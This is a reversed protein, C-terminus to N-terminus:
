NWHNVYLTINSGPTCYLSEILSRIELSWSLQTEDAAAERTNGKSPARNEATRESVHSRSWKSADRGTAHAGAEGVPHLKRSSAARLKPMERSVEGGGSAQFM